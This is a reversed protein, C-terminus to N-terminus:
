GREMEDRAAAVCGVGVAVGAELPACYDFKVVASMFYNEIFKKLSNLDGILGFNEPFDNWVRIIRNLLFERGPKTHLRKKALALNHGRTGVNPRFEVLSNKLIETKCFRFLCIIDERLRRYKLTPLNLSKLRDSYELGRLNYIYRTALKQVKEIEDSLYKLNKNWVPSCYELHPRILSKYLTLFTKTDLFKFTRTILAM